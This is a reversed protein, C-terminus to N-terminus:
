AKLGLFKVANHYLWKDKVAEDLPFTRVEEISRKFPLLPWACSFM